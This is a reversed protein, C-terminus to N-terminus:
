GIQPSATSSSPVSVGVRRLGPGALRAVVAALVLFMPQQEEGEGVLGSARADGFGDV